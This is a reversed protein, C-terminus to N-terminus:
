DKIGKHVFMVDSRLIYKKGDLLKAGEHYLAMDDQLFVIAM